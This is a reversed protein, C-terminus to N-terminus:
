DNRVPGRYNKLDVKNTPDYPKRLKDDKKSSFSWEDGNVHSYSVYPKKDSIRADKCIDRITYDKINFKGFMSDLRLKLNRMTDGGPHGVTTIFEVIFHGEWKFRLIYKANQYPELYRDMAVNYAAEQEEEDGIPVGNEDYDFADLVARNHFSNRDVIDMMPYEGGFFKQLRACIDKNKKETESSYLIGELIVSLKM